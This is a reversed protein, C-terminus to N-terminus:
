GFIKRIESDVQSTRRISPSENKKKKIERWPDQKGDQKFWERGSDYEQSHVEIFGMIEM